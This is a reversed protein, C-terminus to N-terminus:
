QRRMKLKIDKILSDVFIKFVNKLINSEVIEGQKSRRVTIIDNYSM